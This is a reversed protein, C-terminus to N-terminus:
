NVPINLRKMRNYLTARTIGLADATVQKNGSMKRLTNILIERECDELQEKLGQDSHPNVFRKNRHEEELFPLDERQLVGDVSFVVLREIVNRLERVNGPWTHNLLDKMIQQSIGHIPRHYKTSFEYLFYHTLEIIDETRDKLPPIVLNVVNLRYYLDERFKGEKIRKKLDQNTAAIICIDAQLEKTGGVAFYSREQIVRLLKVQMDLPLEGIEDLFLTGGKALEIKGKKGKQDAGSFAGREYGFLESEFLSSPIAGCNIPIFPSSTKERLDHIAKAFLEKGVGSEGQILVTAKTSALRKTKNITKKLSRSSGRIKEFPNTSLNLEAVQRELHHLKATTQSLEQNLKVQSTIDIESAVAGITKNGLKIPATNILVFRDPRALHQHRHLAKGTKLTELLELKDKDFFDTMPKGLINEKSISFIEEAKETWVRVIGSNDVVSVSAEMTEMIADYYAFLCQYSLHLNRFFTGRDIYGIPSKKQDMVLVFAHDILIEVLEETRCDSTIWISKQPSNQDYQFFLQENDFFFTLPENVNAQKTTKDQFTFDKKLLGKVQPLKFPM